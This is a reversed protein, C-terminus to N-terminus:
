YVWLHDPDPVFVMSSSIKVDETHTAEEWTFKVIWGGIVPVRETLQSTREDNFDEIYEWDFPVHVRKPEYSEPVMIDKGM